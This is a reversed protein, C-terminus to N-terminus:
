QLTLSDDQGRPGGAAAVAQGIQGKFAECCALVQAGAATMLVTAEHEQHQECRLGAVANEIVDCLKALAAAHLNSQVQERNVRVIVGM